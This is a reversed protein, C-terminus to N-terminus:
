EIYDLTDVLQFFDYLLHTEGEFYTAGVQHPISWIIQFDADEFKREYEGYMNQEFGHEELYDKQREKLMIKGGYVSNDQLGKM